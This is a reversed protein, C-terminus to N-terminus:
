IGVDGPAPLTSTATPWDGKFGAGVHVRYSSMAISSHAPHSMSVPRWDSSSVVSVPVPVTYKLARVDVVNSESRTPICTM